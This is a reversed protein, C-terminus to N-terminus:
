IKGLTECKLFCKVCVGFRILLFLKGTNLTVEFVSRSFQNKKKKFSVTVKKPM